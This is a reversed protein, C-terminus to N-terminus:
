SRQAAGDPITTASWGPQNSRSADKLISEGWGKVFWFMAGASNLVTCYYGLVILAAPHRNRLLNLYGEALGIPWTMAVRLEPVDSSAGAHEIWRVLTSVETQCLTQASSDANDPINLKKLRDTISALQPTISEHKGLSLFKGLPGTSITEQHADLIQSMGRILLFVDLLDDIDPQVDSSGDPNSLTGFASISLLSSAVFVAHCNEKSTQQLIVRLGKVADNQHQSALISYHGRRYPRLFALHYASMALMQHMLFDYTLALRPVEIQWINRLELGRPLSLYAATSYHHM